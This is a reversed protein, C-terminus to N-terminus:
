VANCNRAVVVADDRVGDINAIGVVGTICRSVFPKAQSAIELAADAVEVVFAM